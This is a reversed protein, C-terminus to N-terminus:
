PAAGITAGTLVGQESQLAFVAGVEHGNPGYFHGKAEINDATITKTGYQWQHANADGIASLANDTIAFEIHLHIDDSSLRMSAKNASLDFALLGDAQALSTNCFSCYYRATMDYDLSTLPPTGTKGFIMFQGPNITAPNGFDALGTLRSAQGAISHSLSSLAVFRSSGESAYIINTFPDPQKNLFSTLAPENTFTSIAGTSANIIIAKDQANTFDDFTAFLQDSPTTLIASPTTAIVLPASAGGSNGGCGGLALGCVVLCLMLLPPTISFRVTSVNTQLTSLAEKSEM